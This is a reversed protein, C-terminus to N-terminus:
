ICLSRRRTQLAGSTAISPGRHQPEGLRFAVFNQVNSGKLFRPYVQCDAFV